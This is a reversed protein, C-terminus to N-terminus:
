SVAYAQLVNTDIYKVQTRSIDFINKRQQTAKVLLSYAAAKCSVPAVSLSSTIRDTSAPCEAARGNLHTDENENGNNWKNRGFNLSM